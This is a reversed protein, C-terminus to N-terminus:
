GKNDIGGTLRRGRPTPEFIRSLLRRMLGPPSEAFAERVMRRVLTLAELEARCVHCRALHATVQRRDTDNLTGSLYWPLLQMLPHAPPGAFRSDNM